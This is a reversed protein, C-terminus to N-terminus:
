NVGLFPIKRLLWMTFKYVQDFNILIILIPIVLTLTSPRVFFGLLSVNDFLLNLFTDINTILSDPLNPINIWGFVLQLLSMILNLITELIM